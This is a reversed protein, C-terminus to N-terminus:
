IHGRELMRALIFLSMCGRKRAYMRAMRSGIKKELKAARVAHFAKQDIETIFM